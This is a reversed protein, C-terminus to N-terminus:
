EVNEVVAKSIAHLSLVLEGGLTTMAVPDNPHAMLENAIVIVFVEVSDEVTTKSRMHTLLHEIDLMLLRAKRPTFVKLKEEDTLTRDADMETLFTSRITPNLGAEESHFDSGERLLIGADDAKKHFPRNGYKAIFVPEGERGLMECQWCVWKSPQCRNKCGPHYCTDFV